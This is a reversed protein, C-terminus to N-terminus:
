RDKLEIIFNSRWEMLVKLQSLYDAKFSYALAVRNNDYHDLAIEKAEYSQNHEQQHTDALSRFTKRFSHTRQYKGREKNNYGLRKLAGNISEHSIPKGNISFIYENQSFPKQEKLIEIVEKTLPMKFDPLNKNHNKMLNRPITLTHNKFDIYRWKLNVLNNARIPMHLVFRMANRISVDGKYNYIDEILEKLVNEDVIAEIHEVERKPILSKKDIDSIINHEVFGRSRAYIWFRNLYNTMRDATESAQKAKAM